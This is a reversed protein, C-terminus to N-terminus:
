NEPYAQIKGWAGWMNNAPASRVPARGERAATESEGKRAEAKGWKQAAPGFIIPAAAALLGALDLFDSM